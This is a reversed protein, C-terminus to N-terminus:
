TGNVQKTIELVTDLATSQNQPGMHQKSITYMPATAGGDGRGEEAGRERSSSASSCSASSSQPLLWAPTPPVGGHLYQYTDLPLLDSDSDDLSLTSHPSDCVRALMCASEDEEPPEVGGEAMVGWGLGGESVLAGPGPRDLLM